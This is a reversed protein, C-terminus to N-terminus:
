NDPPENHHEPEAQVISQLQQLTQDDLYRDVHRWERNINDLDLATEAAAKANEPRDIEYLWNALEAHVQANTPDGVICKQKCDVARELLSRDAFHQYGLYLIAAKMQLPAVSGSRAKVFDDAAALGRDFHERLTSEDRLAPQQLSYAWVSARRQRSDSDLPDAEIASEYFGAAATPNSRMKFDGQMQFYQSVVMAKVGWIASILLLVAWGSARLWHLGVSVAGDESHGAPLKASLPKPENESSCFASFAFLLLGVASIQLGGAVLLHVVLTLFAVGATGPLMRFSNLVWASVAAGVLVLYRTNTFSFAAMETSDWALGGQLFEVAVFFLGGGLIASSSVVPQGAADSQREAAWDEDASQWLSRLVRWVLWVFAILGLLGASCWADIFVNHPDLIQESSEPVKHVLYADRLNGPGCGFIPSDRIVGASGIWYFLRYQLSKPAELAVEKDVAGVALGATFILGFVALCIAGIRFLRKSTQSRREKKRMRAVWTLLVIGAVCAGWASRSKTLLLAWAVAAALLALLGWRLASPSQSLRRTGAVLGALLVFCCALVGGLTNALAYPGLAETSELLRGEYQLKEPGDLPIGMAEFAKRAEAGQSGGKDIQDRIGRYWTAQAPLSIHHQYAGLLAAGVGLAAFLKLATSRDAAGACFHKLLWFVALLASWELALNLAARRDGQVAFVWGTSVWLGVVLLAAPFGTGQWVTREQRPAGYLSVVLAFGLWITAWILGDGQIAGESPWLFATTILATLAFGMRGTM